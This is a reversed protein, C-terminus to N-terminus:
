HKVWGILSVHPGLAVRILLHRWWSLSVVGKWAEDFIPSQMAEGERNRNEPRRTAKAIAVRLQALYPPERREFNRPKSHWDTLAAEAAVLLEPAAAILRANAQGSWAGDSVSKGQQWSVTDNVRCINMEHIDNVFNGPRGATHWPGPTHKQETM